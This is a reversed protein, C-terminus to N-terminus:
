KSGKRKRPPQELFRISDGKPSSPECAESVFKQDDETAAKKAQLRKWREELEAKWARAEEVPIYVVALERLKKEGGFLTKTKGTISFCFATMLGAKLRRHVGARTAGVYAAIGGPSLVDIDHECIKDFWTCSDEHSGEAKFIWSDGDREGLFPLLSDPIRILSITAMEFVYECYTLPDDVSFRSQM